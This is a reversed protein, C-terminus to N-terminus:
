RQAPPEVSCCSRSRFGAGLAVLRTWMPADLASRCVSACCAYKRLCNTFVEVDIDIGAVALKVATVADAGLSM